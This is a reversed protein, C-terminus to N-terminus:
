DMFSSRNSVGSSVYYIPKMEADDVNLAQENSEYACITIGLFDAYKRVTDRGKTLEACLLNMKEIAFESAGSSWYSQISDIVERLNRAEQEMIMGLRAIRERRDELQSLSININEM